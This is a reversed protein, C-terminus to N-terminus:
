WPQFISHLWNAKQLFNVLSSSVLPLSTQVSYPPSPSSFQVNEEQLRGTSTLHHTRFLPSSRGLVDM